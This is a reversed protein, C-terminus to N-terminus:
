EMYTKIKKLLEIITQQEAPELAQLADEISKRACIRAQKELALGAETLYVLNVRRDNEAAKRMVLGKQELLDVIRTISARDRKAKAALEIQTIGDQTWLETLTRFQETTIPLQAERLHKDLRRTIQTFVEGMLRAFNNQYDL